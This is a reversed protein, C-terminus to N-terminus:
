KLGEEASLVWAMGATPVANLIVYLTVKLIWLEGMEGAKNNNNDDDDDDDDDGDVKAGGGKRKWRHIM